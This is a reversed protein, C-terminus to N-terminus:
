PRAVSMNIAIEAIDSSYDAIRSLSDLMAKYHIATEITLTKKFIENSAEEYQKKVKDHSEFVQLAREQDKKFISKSAQDSLEIVATLINEATKLEMENTMSGSAKIRMLSQILNEIHDSIREFSKVVIRYGLAERQEEIGLIAASQGHRVASKLQRVVLFYLRDIEKERIMIDKALGEDGKSMVEGADKLMSKIILHIRKLAQLTSVKDQDLYVELLVHNEYEEAIGLGMLFEIVYRIDKKFELRQKEEFKVTIQDYGVLYYSIILLKLHEKSGLKSSDIVAKQPTKEIGGSSLMLTGGMERVFLSDGEQIGTKKTWRKPLSVVLTSGGSRYVKRADM